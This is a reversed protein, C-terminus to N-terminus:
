RPTFEFRQRCWVEVPQGGLLAPYFQMAAACRQAADVLVTDRDGGAWRVDVVRGLRDVRVDLEVATPRALSRPAILTGPARLIPPLLRPAGRGAGTQPQPLLLTDPTAPPLPPEPVGARAPTVHALTVNVEPPPAALSLTRGTDALVRVV